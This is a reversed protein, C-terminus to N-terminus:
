SPRCKADYRALIRLSVLIKQTFAILMDKNFCVHYSFTNGVRQSSFCQGANKKDLLEKLHSDIVHITSDGLLLM